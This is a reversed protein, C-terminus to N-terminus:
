SDHRVTIFAQTQQLKAAHELQRILGSNNDLADAHFTYELRQNVPTEIVPAARTSTFLAYRRIAQIRLSLVEYLQNSLLCQRLSSSKVPLCAHM